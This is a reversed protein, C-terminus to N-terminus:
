FNYRQEIYPTFSGEIVFDTRDQQANTVIEVSSFFEDTTTRSTAPIELPLFSRRAIQPSLTSNLQKKVGCSRSRSKTDKEGPKVM